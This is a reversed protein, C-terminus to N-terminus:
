TRFQAIRIHHTFSACDRKPVDCTRARYLEIKMQKMNRWIQACHLTLKCSFCTRYTLCLLRICDQKNCNPGLSETKQVLTLVTVVVNECLVQEVSHGQGLFCLHGPRVAMRASTVADSAGEQLLLAPPRASMCVTGTTTTSRRPM